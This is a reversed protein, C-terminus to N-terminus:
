METWKLLGLSYANAASAVQVNKNNIVMIRDCFKEAYEVSHTAVIIGLKYDNAMKKLSLFLRRSHPIDLFANPEDLLLIKVRQALGRALFVRSREGDSLDCIYRFSFKSLDFFNIADDVIKEDELNRSDFIGAYPLRGLLVFERVTINALQQASMRVLTVIKAREKANWKCKGLLEIKGAVPNLLGSLTKLMTSKGCGNEGLLAVVEGAKLTFDFPSVLSHKYGFAFASCTLLNASNM